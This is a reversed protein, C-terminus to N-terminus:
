VENIKKEINITDNQERQSGNLVDHSGAIEAWMLIDEGLSNPFPSEYEQRAVESGQITGDKRKFVIEECKIQGTQIYYQYETYYQEINDPDIYMVYVVKFNEVHNGLVLFISNSFVKDYFFVSDGASNVEHFIYGKLQKARVQEYNKNPKSEGNLNYNSCFEEVSSLDTTVENKSSDSCGICSTLILIPMFAMLMLIKKMVVDKQSKVTM